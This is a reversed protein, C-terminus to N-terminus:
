MYFHVASVVAFPLVIWVFYTVGEPQSKMMVCIAAAVQM